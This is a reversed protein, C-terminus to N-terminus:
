ARRPVGDVGAVDVATAGEAARGDLKFESGAGEFGVGGGDLDGRGFALGDGYVEVKGAEALQAVHLGIHLGQYSGSRCLYRRNSVRVFCSKLLLNLNSSNRLFGFRVAFRM